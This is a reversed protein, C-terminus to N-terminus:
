EIANPNEINSIDGIEQNLLKARLVRRMIKGTRTKPLEKVCIVDKPIAIKGLKEAIFQKLEDKNIDETVVYLVLNM